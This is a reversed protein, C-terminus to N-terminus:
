SPRSDQVASGLIAVLNQSSKLLRAEASKDAADLSSRSGSWEGSNWTQGLQKSLSKVYNMTAAKTQAYDYLDLHRIM